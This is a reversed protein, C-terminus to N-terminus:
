ILEEDLGEIINKIREYDSEELADKIWDIAREYTELNIRMQEYHDTNVKIEEPRNFDDYIKENM